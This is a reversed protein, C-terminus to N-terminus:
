NRPLDTQTAWLTVGIVRDDTDFVVTLILDDFRWGTVIPGSSPFNDRIIMGGNEDKDIHPLRKSALNFAAPSQMKGRSAKLFPIQKLDKGLEFESLGPQGLLAHVQVKSMGLEIRSYFVPEDPVERFDLLSTSKLLIWHGSAAIAVIAVSAIACRQFLVGRDGRM